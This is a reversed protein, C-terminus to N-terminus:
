CVRRAAQTTALLVDFSQSARLNRLPWLLLAALVLLLAGIWLLLRAPTATQPLGGFIAAHDLGAPLNVALATKISAVGIPATPTVDVAVLSTYKSVLHHDLATAVILPKVEDETAGGVLADSLASIRERAWLAGVGQAPAGASLPLLTGWGAAGRRGVISMTSLPTSFEAAVVIPEGAYLDPIQRPYADTGAPWTAAIDTLAPNELKAYLTTMKERVETV